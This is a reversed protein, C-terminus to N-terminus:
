ELFTKYCQESLRQRDISPGSLTSSMESSRHLSLATRHPSLFLSTSVSPHGNVDM